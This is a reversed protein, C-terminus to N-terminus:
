RSTARRVQDIRKSKRIQVDADARAQRRTDDTRGANKYEHAAAM